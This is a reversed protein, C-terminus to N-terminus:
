LTAKGTQSWDEGSEYDSEEIMELYPSDICGSAQGLFDLWVKRNM